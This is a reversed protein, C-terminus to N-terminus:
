LMPDTKNLEGIHDLMKLESVVNKIVLELKGIKFMELIEYEKEFNIVENSMTTDM